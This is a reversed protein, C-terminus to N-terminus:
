QTILQADWEQAHKKPGQFGYCCNEEHLSQTLLAVRHSHKETYSNDIILKSLFSILTM